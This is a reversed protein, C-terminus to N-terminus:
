KQTQEEPKKHPYELGFLEVLGPLIIELFMGRPIGQGPKWDYRKVMEAFEEDTM